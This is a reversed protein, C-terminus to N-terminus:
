LGVEKKVINIDTTRDESDKNSTSPRNTDSSMEPFITIERSTQFIM